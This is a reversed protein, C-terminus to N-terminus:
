LDRDRLAELQEASPKHRETMTGAVKVTGADMTYVTTHYLSGGFGRSAGFDQGAYVNKEGALVWAPELGAKALM